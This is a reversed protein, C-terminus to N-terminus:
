KVEMFKTSSMLQSNKLKEELEEVKTYYDSTNGLTLLDRIIMVDHLHVFLIGSRQFVGWIALGAYVFYDADCLIVADLLRRISQLYVICYYEQFLCAMSEM